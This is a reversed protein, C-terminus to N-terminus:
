SNTSYIHKSKKEGRSSIYNSCIYMYIPLYENISPFFTTHTSNTRLLILPRKSRRTYRGRHISIHTPLVSRHYHIAILTHPSSLYTVEKFRCIILM